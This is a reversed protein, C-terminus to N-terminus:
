CCRGYGNSVPNAIDVRGEVDFNLVERHNQAKVIVIEAIKEFIRSVDKHSKASVEFCLDEEANASRLEPALDSFSGWNLKAFEKAQRSSVQRYGELDNKNGVLIIVPNRTESASRFDALWKNLHSFSAANTIDYVLIAVDTGRYFSLGISNFREQGATDWIQM